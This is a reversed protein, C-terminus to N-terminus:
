VSLNEKYVKLAYNCSFESKMGFCIIIKNIRVNPFPLLIHNLCHLNCTAKSKWIFRWLNGGPLPLISFRIFLLNRGKTAKVLVAINQFDGNQRFFAIGLFEERCLGISHCFCYIICYPQLLAVEWDAKSLHIAQLNPAWCFTYKNAVLSPM